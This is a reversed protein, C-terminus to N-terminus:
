LESWSDKKVRKKLSSHDLLMWQKINTYVTLIVFQSFCFSVILAEFLFPYRKPPELGLYVLHLAASSILGVTLLAIRKTSSKDVRGHQKGHPAYFILAFLALVSGYQLSLKDRCVLPFMSLLSCHILWGFLTPEQLALLSAPLLPLLISKEHVALFWSQIPVLDRFNIYRGPSSHSLLLSSTKIFMGQYSFLYFSFSSNLLSYLFGLDSPSKLQQVFSPFFALITAISCIFRMTSITFIRKWKILISTSCWFNAVYDEFVGREFPALRHIVQKYWHSSWIMSYLKAIALHFFIYSYTLILVFLVLFGLSLLSTFHKEISAIDVHINVEMVSQVSHIYPWWVLAFIGIVVFGLKLVEFIPNKRRFCKGLLHSFFAPAYYLSM